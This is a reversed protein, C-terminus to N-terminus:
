RVKVCIIILSASRSQPKMKICMLLAANRRTIFREGQEHLSPASPEALRKEYQKKSLEVAKLLGMAVNRYYEHVEETGLEKSPCVLPGRQATFSDTGIKRMRLFCVTTGILNIAKEMEIKWSGIM